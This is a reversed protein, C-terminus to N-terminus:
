PVTLARTTRKHLPCLAQTLRFWHTKWYPARVDERNMWLCQQCYFYWRDSADDPLGRGPQPFLREAVGTFFSLRARNEPTPARMTLWGCPEAGLDLDLQGAAALEDVDMEFRGAIRGFWSGLAEDGFPKPVHPWPREPRSM